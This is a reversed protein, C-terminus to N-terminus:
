GDIYNTVRSLFMKSNHFGTSAWHCATVVVGIWHKVVLFHRTNKRNSSTQGKTLLVARTLITLISSGKVHLNKASYASSLTKSLFTKYMIKFVSIKYFETFFVKAPVLTVTGPQPGKQAWTKVTFEHLVTGVALNTERLLVWVLHGRLDQSSSLLEKVNLSEYWYFHGFCNNFCDRLKIKLGILKSMWYYFTYNSQFKYHLCCFQPRRAQPLSVEAKCRGYGSKSEFDKTIHRGPDTPRPCLSQFCGNETNTHCVRPLEQSGVRNEVALPCVWIDKGKCVRFTVWSHSPNKVSRHRISPSPASAM